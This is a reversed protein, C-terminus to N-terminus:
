RAPEMVQLVISHGKLAARDAKWWGAMKVVVGSEGPLFEVVRVHGGGDAHVNGPEVFMPRVYFRRIQDSPEVEFAAAWVTSGIAKVPNSDDVHIWSASLFRVGERPTDGSRLDWWDAKSIERLSLGSGHPDMYGPRPLNAPDLPRENKYRTRPRIEDSQWAVLSSALVGVAAVAVLSRLVKM